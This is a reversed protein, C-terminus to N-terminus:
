WWLSARRCPGGELAPHQMSPLRLRRDWEQVFVGMMVFSLAVAAGAGFLYLGLPVPLDYREGFGHAAVPYVALALGAAIAM